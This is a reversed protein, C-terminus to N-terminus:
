HGGGGTGGASRVKLVPDEFRVTFTGDTNNIAAVGIRVKSPWATDIPRLATWSDGDQSTSGVVRGGRREIRLYVTGPPLAGNHAASNSGGEREEFIAFASVKGNRLVTARELRILNDVDKMVLIGGGNFPVYRPTTSKSGPKFEGVVKVQFLFDGEVERLVRPANYDDTQALGHGKGGPVDIVLAKGDPRITCDGDPNIARGWGPIERATDEGKVAVKKVPTTGETFSGFFRGVDGPLERNNASVALLVYIAQGSVYMRIRITSVPGGRQPQARITYDRGPKGYLNLGKETLVRGNYEKLIDDRVNNLEINEAGRVIRTPLTIKEAIYDVPPTVCTVVVYQASGEPGNRTRTATSTPRTPFDVVFQGEKSIYTTWPRTDAGPAQFGVALTAIVTSVFM